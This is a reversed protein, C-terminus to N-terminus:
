CVPLTIFFLAFGLHALLFFCCFAKVKSKKNYKQATFHAIHMNYIFSKVLM